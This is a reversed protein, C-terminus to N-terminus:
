NRGRTKNEILQLYYAANVGGPLGTFELTRTYGSMIRGSVGDHLDGCASHFEFDPPSETADIALTDLVGTGITTGNYIVITYIQGSRSVHILRETNITLNATVDSRNSVGTRYTVNVKLGQANVRFYKKGTIQLTQLDTDVNSYLTHIVLPNVGSVATTKYIFDNTVGVTIAGVGLSKSLWAPGDTRNINTVTVRDSTLASIFGALDTKNYTTLDQAM